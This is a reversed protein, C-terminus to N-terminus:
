RTDVFNLTSINLVCIVNCHVRVGVLYTCACNRVGWLVIAPHGQWASQHPLMRWLSLLTTRTNEGHNVRAYSSGQFKGHCASVLTLDNSIKGHCTSVFALDHSRKRSLSFCSCFREIKKRSLSLCFGFREIKKRSVWDENRGFGRDFKALKTFSKSVNVLRAWKEKTSIM